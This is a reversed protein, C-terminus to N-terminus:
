DLYWFKKIVGASKLTKIKNYEELLIVFLSAKTKISAEAFECDTIILAKEFKNKNIHEIVPDIQTGSVEFNGILLDQYSIEQVEKAFAFYPGGFVDRLATINKCIDKQSSKTSISFDIYIAANKPVKTEIINDYFFPIVGNGLMLAEKRSINPIISRLVTQSIGHMVDKKDDFMARQVADKLIEKKRKDIPTNTLDFIDGTQIISKGTESNSIINKQMTESLEIISEPLELDDLPIEEHENEDPMEEPEHEEILKELYECIEELSLGGNEYNKFWFEIILDIKGKDLNIKRLDSEIEEKTKFPPVLLFYYGNRDEGSLFQEYNIANTKTLVEIPNRDNINYLMSNVQCDFAINCFENTYIRTLGSTLHNLIYHSVEHCIIWLIDEDNLDYDTIFNTNILIEFKQNTLLLLATIDEDLDLFKITKIDKRFVDLFPILNQNKEYILDILKILYKNKSQM